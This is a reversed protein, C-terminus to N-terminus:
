EGRGPRTGFLAKIRDIGMGFDAGQYDEHGEDPHLITVRLGADRGDVSRAPQIAFGRAPVGTYFHLYGGSQDHTAPAGAARLDDAIMMLAASRNAEARRRACEARRISQATTKAEPQNKTVGAM